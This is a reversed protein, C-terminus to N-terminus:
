SAQVVGRLMVPAADDRTDASDQRGEMFLPGHTQRDPRNLGEDVLHKDHIIPGRIPGLPDGLRGPSAHHAVENVPPLPGRKLRAQLDGPSRVEFDGEQHVGVTLMDTV